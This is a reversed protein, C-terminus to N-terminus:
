KIMQDSRIQDSRIQDSRIQDSRIQYPVIFGDTSDSKEPHRLPLDKGQILYRYRMPHIVNKIVPPCSLRAAQGRLPMRPTCLGVASGARPGGSSSAPSGAGRWWTGCCARWEEPVEEYGTNHIRIQIKDTDPDLLAFIIWLCLFFNFLNCKELLLM